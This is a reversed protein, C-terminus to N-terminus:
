EHSTEKLKSGKKYLGERVGKIMSSAQIFREKDFLIHIIFTLILKLIAWFKWVVPVYDRHMLRVANRFLYYHRLPSRLPYTKWRGLWIRKGSEGMRHHFVANPIGFLFGGAALVRFSWDTDVHDIFLSEDLGGLAKFLAVPM